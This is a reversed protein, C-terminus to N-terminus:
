YSTRDLESIYDGETVFTGEPVIDLIKLDMARIRSHRGHNRNNGTSLTPGKIDISKEPELEGSAKVTIEFNGVQVETYIDSLSNKTSALKNFTILAIVAVSIGIFSIIKKTKIKM